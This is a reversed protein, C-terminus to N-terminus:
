VWQFFDQSESVCFLGCFAGGSPGGIRISLEPICFTFFVFCAQLDSRSVSYMSKAKSAWLSHIPTCFNSSVLCVFSVLVFFFHYHTYKLTRLTTTPTLHRAQGTVTARNGFTVGNRRETGPPFRPNKCSKTCTDILHGHLHEDIVAADHATM